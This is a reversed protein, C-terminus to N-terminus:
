TRRMALNFVAHAAVHDLTTLDFVTSQIIGRESVKNGMMNDMEDFPVPSRLDRWSKSMPIDWYGSRHGARPSEVFTNEAMGLASIGIQNYWLLIGDGIAVRQFDHYKSGIDPNLSACRNACMRNLLDPGNIIDFNLVFIRSNPDLPYRASSKHPLTTTM